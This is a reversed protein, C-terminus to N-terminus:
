SSISEKWPWGLVGSRAVEPMSGTTLSHCGAGSSPCALELSTSSLSAAAFRLWRRIFASGKSVMRMFMPTPPAFSPNLRKVIRRLHRHIRTTIFSPFTSLACNLTPWALSKTSGAQLPLVELLTRIRAIGQFEQNM